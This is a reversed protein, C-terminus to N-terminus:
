LFSRVLQASESYVKLLPNCVSAWGAMGDMSGHGLGCILSEVMSSNSIRSLVFM